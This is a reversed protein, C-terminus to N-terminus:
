QFNGQFVGYMYTGDSIFTIYDVANIATSLIPKVGNPFKYANGWTSIINSGTGGQILELVYTGGAVMNTPNALTNTATGTLTVAYVQQTNLNWAITSGTTTQMSSNQQGTFLNVHTTDIIANGGSSTIGAGVGLYALGGFSGGAASTLSSSTFNSPLVTVTSSLPTFGLAAVVNSSTLSLVPGTITLNSGIQIGGVGSVTANPLTYASAFAGSGLSSYLAFGGAAGANNGLATFVGTGYYFQGLTAGNIYLGYGPTGGTISGGISIAAAGSTQCGVVGGNNYIQYGNTCAGTIPAGVTISGTQPVSMGDAFAACASLFFASVVLLKNM